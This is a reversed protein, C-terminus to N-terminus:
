SFRANNNDTGRQSRWANSHQTAGRANSQWCMSVPSGCALNREALQMYFSLVNEAELDKVAQFKKWFTASLLFVIWIKFNM